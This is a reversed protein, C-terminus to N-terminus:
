PQERKLHLTTTTDLPMSHEHHYNRPEPDHDGVCVMPPGDQMMRAVYDRQARYDALRKRADALHPRHPMGRAIMVEYATIDSLMAGIVGDIYRLRRMMYFEFSTVRKFM